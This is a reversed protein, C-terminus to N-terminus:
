TKIQNGCELILQQSSEKKDNELLMGIRGIGIVSVKIKKNM